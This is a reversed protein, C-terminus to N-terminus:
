ESGGALRGSEGRGAAVHGGELGAGAREVLPDAGHEVGQVVEAQDVFVSTMQVVSWPMAKGPALAVRISRPMPTIIIM